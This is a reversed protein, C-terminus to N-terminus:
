RVGVLASRDDRVWTVPTTVPRPNAQAPPAARTECPPGARYRTGDPRFWRVQGQRSRTLQWGLEHVLRHHFSCILALNDLDTRGGASWFTVHHVETFATTGCGPFVCERDRYRVQRLMAASPERRMRGFRVADGAEDEIVIQVRANCLLRRVVDPHLPTGSELESGGSGDRLGEARAHVVVTARDPDPDTAIRAACLAELADARRADVCWPGEEGPMRPIADAMRSLASIIREGQHAPFEGEIGVRRDEDMRWWRLFRDQHAERDTEIAPHADREARRRIAGCSVRQAWQLLGAESAPTALRTLEVVKDLGLAGTSLAHSVAPLGQLAHAAAVWRRAKWGSVGYRMGLWHPLDRAGDDRWAESRDIQAILGLMERQASGVRAHVRDLATVTATSTDFMHEVM